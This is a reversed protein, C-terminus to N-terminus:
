FQWMKIKENRSGTISEFFNSHGTFLINENSNFNLSDVWNSEISKVIKHSNLDIITLNEKAGSSGVALFNSSLLKICWISFNLNIRHLCQGSSIDWVRITQDDSASYLKSKEPYIELCRVSDTHRIFTRVCENTELNWLKIKNDWSCSIIQYLSVHKLDRIASEHAQFSDIKFFNNFNSKAIKGNDLGCVLINDPLLCLSRVGSELQLTEVCEFDNEIKWVKISKDDSGSILHTMDKSVKLSKIEKTHGTLTKLCKGTETSWIKIFTDNSCTIIKGFDEIPEICKVWDTQEQFTKILRGSEETIEFLDFKHNVILHGLQDSNEELFSITKNMLLRNELTKSKTKIEEIIEDIKDKLENLDIEQLDNARLHEYLENMQDKKEERLNWKALNPENEYCETETKKLKGLIEESRKHISEIMQDRHLDIKNRISSFYEHIYVQPHALNKKYFDEIVNELQDFMDKVQRHQGKLHSNETMRINIDQNIRFGDEPIKFENKCVPCICTSENCNVHQKCITEGCSLTIPEKLYKNCGVFACIYESNNGKSM